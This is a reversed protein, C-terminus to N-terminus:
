RAALNLCKVVTDAVCKASIGFREQLYQESGVAGHPNQRVALRTLRANLGNEAIVESIMSGLAGNIYHSEVTFVHRHRSITEILHEEPSPNMSSVLAVTAQIGQQRLLSEAKAAETASNGMAIILADQGNALLDLKGLEFNGNLEPLSINENKSLRYYAPGPMDWTKQLATKLQASDCPTIISLGPQVRLAGVDDLGFHTPGHHSYEVGGGIGVIKVPLNHLVPGNRIFEYPRLTAFTAISYVFPIMGAEAMGTAMGMMNQEAVGANIFRDPFKEAFPEVVFYGLDGTLLYIRKDKDALEILKQIFAKRM